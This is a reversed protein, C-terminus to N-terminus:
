SNSEGAYYTFRGFLWLVLLTFILTVLFIIVALAAGYGFENYVFARVYLYTLFTGLSNHYGLPNGATAVSGSGGAAFTLPTEFVQIHGILIMITNFLIVPSLLPLTIHTFRKWAGAGDIRAAEYYTNSIGKLGALFILMTGGIFWINVLILAIMGMGPFDFNSLWNFPGIHFIGLAENALGANGSSFVQKFMMGIAVGVLLSPVYFIIRFLTNGPFSRNLLVAMGLGGVISIITSAFVYILMNLSVQKFIQDHFLLKDYNKFGVWVPDNFLNYNTFSDYFTNLLPWLGLLFLGILWPSIFLYGAFAERQWFHRTPRTYRRRATGSPSLPKITRSLM